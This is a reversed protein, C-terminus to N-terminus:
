FDTSLYWLLLQNPIWCLLGKSVIEYGEDLAKEVYVPLLFGDDYQKFRGVVGLSWSTGSGIYVKPKCGPKELVLAVCGLTVGYGKASEQVM